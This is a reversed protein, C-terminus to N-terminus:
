PSKQRTPRATVPWNFVLLSTFLKAFLEMPRRDESRPRSLEIMPGAAPPILIELLGDNNVDLWAACIDKALNQIGTNRIKADSLPLPWCKGWAASQAPV